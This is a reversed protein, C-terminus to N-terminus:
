DDSGGGAGAPPALEARVPAGGARASPGGARTEGGPSTEWLALLKKSLTKSIMLQMANAFDADSEMLEYFARQPWRVYTSGPEAVMSAIARKHFHGGKSQLNELLSVEGVLNYLGIAAVRGREATVISFNGSLPVFADRVPQGQECLLSGEVSVHWEAYELLRVFQRATLGTPQFCAEYVRREVDALEIPQENVYARLAYYSNIVIFLLEYSIPVIEAREPGTEDFLFAFIEFTSGLIALQRLTANNAIAYAFFFVLYSVARACLRLLPRGRTLSPRALPAAAAARAERHDWLSAEPDWLAQSIIASGIFTVCVIAKDRTTLPETRWPTLFEWRFDGRDFKALTRTWEQSLRTTNAVGERRWETLTSLAAHSLTFLSAEERPPRDPDVWRGTFISPSPRVGRAMEGGLEREALAEAANAPQQRSPERSGTSAMRAPARLAPARLLRARPQVSAAPMACLTACALARLATGRGRGGLQQVM